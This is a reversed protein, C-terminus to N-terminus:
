RQASAPKAPAVPPPPAVLAVFRRRDESTLLQSVDSSVEPDNDSEAVIAKVLAKTENLPIARRSCENLEIDDQRTFVIFGSISVQPKGIATLLSDAKSMAVELDQSPNNSVSKDSALRVLLGGPFTWQDGRDTGKCQVPGVEDRTEMVILGNPTVLLHKIIGGSAPVYHHLSYKNSLGKLENNLLQDARPTARLRKLKNSNTRWLPFGILLSIFSIPAFWIYVSGLTSSPLTLSMISFVFYVAILSIALAQRRRAAQIQQVFFAENTFINM